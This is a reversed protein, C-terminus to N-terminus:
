YNVKFKRRVVYVFGLIMFLISFKKWKNINISMFEVMFNFFIVNENLYFIKMRKKREKKLKLIYM